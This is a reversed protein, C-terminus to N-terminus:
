GEQVIGTIEDIGIGVRKNTNVKEVIVRVHGPDGTVDIVHATHSAPQGKRHFILQVGPALMSKAVNYLDQDLQARRKILGRLVSLSPPPLNNM